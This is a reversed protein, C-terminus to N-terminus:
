GSALSRFLFSKVNHCLLKILVYRSAFIKCRLKKIKKGKDKSKNSFTMM